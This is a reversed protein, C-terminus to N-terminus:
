NILSIFSCGMIGIDKISLILIIIFFGVKLGNSQLSPYCKIKM